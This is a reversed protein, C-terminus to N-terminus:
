GSTLLRVALKFAKILNGRNQWGQFNFPNLWLRKLRVVWGQDAKQLEPEAQEAFKLYYNFHREYLAQIEGTRALQKLSYERLTELLNFRSEDSGYLV